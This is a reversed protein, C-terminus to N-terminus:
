APAPQLTTRGGGMLSFGAEELKSHLLLRNGKRAGTISNINDNRYVDRYLLKPRLLQPVAQLQANLIDPTLQETVDSGKHGWLSCGALSEQGGSDGPTQELEAQTTVNLDHPLLYIDYLDREGM